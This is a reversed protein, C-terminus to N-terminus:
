LQPEPRTSRLRQTYIEELLVDTDMDAWVGAAQLFAQQRKNESDQAGNAKSTPASRDLYLAVAEQLAESLEKGSGDVLTALVQKDAPSLRIDNPDTAM